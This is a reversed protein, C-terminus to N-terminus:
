KIFQTFSYKILYEDTEEIWTESKELDFGIFLKEVKQELEEDIKSTYLEIIIEQEKLNAPFNDAGIDSTSARYYICYPTSKARRFSYYAVKNKIEPISELSKKIEKLTLFSM